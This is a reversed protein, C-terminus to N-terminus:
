WHKPIANTVMDTGKSNYFLAEIGLIATSSFSMFTEKHKIDVFASCLDLKNYGKRVQSGDAEPGRM